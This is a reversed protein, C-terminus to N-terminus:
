SSSMKRTLSSSKVCSIQKCNTNKRRPPTKQVPLMIFFLIYFFSYVKSTVMGKQTLYSLPAWSWTNNDM